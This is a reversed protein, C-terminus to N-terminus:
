LFMLYTKVKAAVNNPTIGQPISEFVKIRQRPAWLIAGNNVYDLTLTYDYEEKLAVFFSISQLETKSTKERVVTEIKGM